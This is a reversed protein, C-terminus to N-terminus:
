DITWQTQVALVILQRELPLNRVEKSQIRKFMDQIEKPCGPLATVHEGYMLLLQWRAAQRLKHKQYWQHKQYAADVIELRDRLAQNVEETYPFTNLGEIEKQYLPNNRLDKGIEILTSKLADTASAYGEQYQNPPTNQRDEPKSVLTQLFELNM